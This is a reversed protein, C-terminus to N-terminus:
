RGVDWWLEFRFRDIMTSDRLGAVVFEFESGYDRMACIKRRSNWHDLEVVNASGIEVGIRALFSKVFKDAETNVEPSAVSPLGFQRFYYPSDAYLRLRSTRGWASLAAFTTILHDVHGGIGAPCYVYDFDDVYARVFTATVKDVMEAYVADRSLLNSYEGGAGLFGERYQVDLFDEHIVKCALRQLIQRDRRRRDLVWDRSSEIRHRGDLESLFSGSPCGAFISQVTVSAFDSIVHYASLVADDLHPSVILARSMAFIGRMGEHRQLTM